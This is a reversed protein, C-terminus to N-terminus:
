SLIPTIATAKGYVSGPPCETGNGAGAKFQPRTCITQFHGQEIFASRPLVVQAGQIGAEGIGNMQLHAKFAPFAGRKTGGILRM